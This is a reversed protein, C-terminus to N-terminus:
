KESKVGNALRIKVFVEIEHLAKCKKCAYKFLKTKLEVKQKTKCKFCTIETCYNTWTYPNQYGSYGYDAPAGFISNLLDKLLNNKM